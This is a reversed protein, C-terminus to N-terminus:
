KEVIFTSIKSRTAKGNVDKVIVVYYYVGNALKEIFEQPLGINLKPSTLGSTIHADVVKRMARTYVAVEVEAPAASIMMGINMYSSVPNPYVLPDFLGMGWTAVVVPTSTSAPTQTNTYAPTLTETVTATNAPLVATATNVPTLTFTLTYTFTPTYTSTGTPVTSTLTQSPTQTESPPAPETATQTVTPSSIGTTDTASPVQATPSFTNVPTDTDTIVPTFTDSPAIPTITGTFTMTPNLVTDTITPTATDTINETATFTKTATFSQTPSPTFTPTMSTVTSTSTATFTPTSTGTVTQTANQITATVTPTDTPTSTKTFTPTASPVTSTLTDTNTPTYTKTFTPTASPVTSTLTATNTPTYTRTFTPTASPVTSTLTVTNTPTYTRTFSPTASPVTSTFTVTYSPTYTKTPTLTFTRTATLTVTRTPTSVTGCTPQTVAALWSQVAAGHCTTAVFNTFNSLLCPPAQTNFDWAMANYAYNSPNNGNIWSLLDTEFPTCGSNDQTNGNGANSPGFEGIDVCFGAAVAVTVYQNWLAIKQAETSGGKNDYIHAEYMIGDGSMSGATNTDTITNSSLGTLDWAWGLGGIVIVNKAGTDRITKVLAQFGPTHFGSASQGGNKWISWTDDKPENYLDFFVAPNNAYHNAVAQWFSTSNDDPMDEQVDSTGFSGTGSWHLDIEAYCNANSAAAVASDVFAIYAAASSPQGHTNKYGFWFDQSIPIRVFNAHWNSIAGTVSNAIAGNAGNNAPSWELGDVDVGTLRVPCGGSVTKLQTGVVHLEAPAAMLYTSSIILSLIMLNLTKMKLKM